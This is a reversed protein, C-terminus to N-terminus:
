LQVEVGIELVRGAPIKFYSAATQANRSMLTFIWERWLAMGRRKSPVLTERGLFFTTEALAYDFGRGKATTLLRPVNVTDMFGYHGIVQYIGNGLEELDLRGTAPVKPTDEIRITLLIVREHLVHNHELNHMLAHPAIQPQSTMFVATGPVRQPPDKKIQKLFDELPNVGESLRTALIERGRKWTSMTTFIIAGVLLPFWGGHEVKIINAGFFALDAVLFSGTLLLSSWLPWHWKERCVFYFIISTIVMTTTVAV